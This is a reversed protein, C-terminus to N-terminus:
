VNSEVNLRAINNLESIESGSLEVAFVLKEAGRPIRLNKVNLFRRAGIRLEGIEFEDVAENDVIVRLIVGEADDLGINAVILEFNLYRGTKNADVSEILLDPESSISYLRNIEEILYDDIIQNCATVPFMISLQDNNHDFGLVHLSEHLAIQPNVCRGARFLSVKGTLIVAFATTNIIESPGGEGAVFHAREEPKPAIESCLYRIEPNVNTEFFSLVTEDALMDLASKIESVKKSNCAPEIYYSISSEKYRMNPFFQIGSVEPFDHEAVFKRFAIQEGFSINVFMYYLGFVLIVFLALLLLFDSARKM